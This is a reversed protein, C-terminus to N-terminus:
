RGNKHIEKLLAEFDGEYIYEGDFPENEAKMREMVDKPVEHIDRYFKTCNIVMYRIGYEKCFKIYSVINKTKTFTGTVAVDLGMKLNAHICRNCWKVADSLKSRDYVYKGSKQFYMNPEFYVVGLWQALVSKGTGPLGRIIYLM